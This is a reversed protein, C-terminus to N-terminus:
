VICFYSNAHLGTSSCAFALFDLRHLNVLQGNMHRDWAAGTSTNLTRFYAWIFGADLSIPKRKGMFGM